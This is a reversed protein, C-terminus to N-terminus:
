VASANSRYSLQKQMWFMEDEYERCTLSYFDLYTTLNNERIFLVRGKIVEFRFIPGATNLIGIDCEGGNTEKEIISITKSILEWDISIEKNFFVAIDLDAGPAIIGNKASGFIFAFDLFPAKEYLVVGLKEPQFHIEGCKYKALREERRSISM